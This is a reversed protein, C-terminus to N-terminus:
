FAGELDADTFTANGVNANKFIARALVAGKFNAEVLNADTFDAGALNAGAFNMKRLDAGSFDPGTFMLEDTLDVVAPEIPHHVVQVPGVLSPFGEKSAVTRSAEARQGYMSLDVSSRLELIETAVETDIASCLQYM